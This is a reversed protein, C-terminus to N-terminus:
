PALDMAVESRLDLLRSFEEIEKGLDRLIAAFDAESADIVKDAATEIQALIDRLAMDYDYMRDLEAENVQAADLFGAYGYPAHDLRDRAHTLRRAVRDLDSVPKFQKDASMQRQYSTLKQRIGDILGVLHARLLKDADRRQERERYGKYGPIIDLLKTLANDDHRVRDRLDGM